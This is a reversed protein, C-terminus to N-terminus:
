PTAAVGIVKAGFMKAITEMRPAGAKGHRGEVIQRAASMLLRELEESASAADSAVRELDKLTLYKTAQKPHRIVDKIDWKGTALRQSRMLVPNHAVMNRKESLKAVTELLGVLEDVFLQDKSHTPALATGLRLRKSLPEPSVHEYIEEDLWFGLLQNLRLEIFGFSFMLKGIAKHWEDQKAAQM